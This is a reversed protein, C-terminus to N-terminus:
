PRQGHPRMTAALVGFPLAQSIKLNGGPAGAVKGALLQAAVAVRRFSAPAGAGNTPENLFRFMFDCHGNAPAGKLDLRGQYTFVSTQARLPMAATIALLLGLTLPTIKISREKKRSRERNKSKRVTPDFCIAVMIDPMGLSRLWRWIAPKSTTRRRGPPRWQWGKQFSGRGHGSHVCEASTRASIRRRPPARNQLSPIPAPWIVWCLLVMWSVTGLTSAHEEVSHM